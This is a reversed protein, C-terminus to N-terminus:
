WAIFYDFIYYLDDEENYVYLIKENETDEYVDWGLLNDGLSTMDLDEELSDITKHKTVTEIVGSFEVHEPLGEMAEGPKMIFYNDHFRMMPRWGEAMATSSATTVIKSETQVDTVPESVNITEQPIENRCSSFFMLLISVFIVTRCKM